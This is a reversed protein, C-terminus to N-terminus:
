PRCQRWPALCASPRRACGNVRDFQERGDVFAVLEDALHVAIQAMGGHAVVGRRMQEVGRKALHESRVDFLGAADDIGIAQAEVKRMVRVGIGLLQGFNLLEDVFLDQFVDFDMGIDHIEVLREVGAGHRQEAFFIAIAHAHNRDGAEALLQAAARVDM